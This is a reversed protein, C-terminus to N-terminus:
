AGPNWTLDDYPLGVFDESTLVGDKRRLKEVMLAVLIKDRPNVQPHVMRTRADFHQFAISQYFM